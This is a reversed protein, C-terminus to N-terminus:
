LLVSAISDDSSESYDEAAPWNEDGAVSSPPSYSDPTAFANSLVDLKVTECEAGEDCARGAREALVRAASEVQHPITSADDGNLPHAFRRGSGGPTGDKGTAAFDGSLLVLAPAQLSEGCVTRIAKRVISMSADVYVCPVAISTALESAAKGADEGM